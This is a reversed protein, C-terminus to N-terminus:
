SSSENEPPPKPTGAREARQRAAMYEEHTDIDMFSTLEPDVDLLESGSISRVKCAELLARLSTNGMELLGLAAPLCGTSYFAHLPQTRGEVIAAMADCDDLFSAMRRIVPPSLFPMDCGVAFRWPGDSAALGRALGVLPGQDDRDDILLEAGLGALRDRDRGVVYVTRFLPRLASIVTEILTADGFPLHAKPMGMRSSQGAALVLADM